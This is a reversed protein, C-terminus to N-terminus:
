KKYFKYFYNKIFGLIYNNNIITILIIDKVQKICKKM